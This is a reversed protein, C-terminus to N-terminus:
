EMFTLRELEDELNRKGIQDMEKLNKNKIKKIPRMIHKFELTLSFM